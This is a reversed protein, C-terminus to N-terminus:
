PSVMDPSTSTDAVSFSLSSIESSFGRFPLTVYKQLALVPSATNAMLTAVVSVMVTPPSPESLKSSFSKLSSAVAYLAESPTFNAPDTDPTPATPPVSAATDKMNSRRSPEHLAVTASVYLDSMKSAASYALDPDVHEASTPVDTLPM